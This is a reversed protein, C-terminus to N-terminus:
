EKKIFEFEVRKETKLNRRTKNKDKQKNGPAFAM